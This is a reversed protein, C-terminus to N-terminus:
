TITPFSPLLTTHLKWKLGSRNKGLELLYNVFVGHKTHISLVVFDSVSFQIKRQM